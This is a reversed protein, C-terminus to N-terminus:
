PAGAYNPRFSKGASTTAFVIPHTFSQTHTHTGTATPTTARRRGSEISQSISDTHGPSTHRRRAAPDRRFFTDALKHTHTPLSLSLSLEPIDKTPRRASFKLSEALSFQYQM